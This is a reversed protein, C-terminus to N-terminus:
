GLRRLTVAATNDPPQLKEASAEWAGQRSQRCIVSRNEVTLAPFTSM